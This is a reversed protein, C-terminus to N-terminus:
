CDPFWSEIQWSMTLFLSVVERDVLTFAYGTTFTPVQFLQYTGMHCVVLMLMMLSRGFWVSRHGVTAKSLRHCQQQIASTLNAWLRVRYRWCFGRVGLMWMIVQELILVRDGPAFNVSLLILSDVVLWVLALERVAHLGDDDAQNCNISQHVNSAEEPVSAKLRELVDSEMERQRCLYCAATVTLLEVFGIEPGSSIPLFSSTFHEDTHFICCFCALLPLSNSIRFTVSQIPELFALILHYLM